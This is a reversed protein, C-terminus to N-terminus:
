VALVRTLASICRALEKENGITIRLFNPMNYNDLPRVIVGHKLLAQYIPKAPKHFNIALFNAVSPLASLGLTQCAQQLQALGKENMAISYEVHYKAKLAAMAAAQAASNINFPFRIRDLIDAIDPHSISYGARLGALGHIKSFTRTTILNPFEAQLKITDPYDDATVYEYYAEDLIVLIRGPVQKLFHALKAESVYSGSPNNPNAIFILRTKDNILSLMANLDYAYNIAPALVPTLHRVRAAIEYQSFTFDSTLIESGPEAFANMLLGFIEDSGNGLTISDYDVNLQEALACKLYYGKGDPYRHCNQLADRAAQLAEDCAGLTNENSSLKVIDDIGLERMVEDIAKGASYPQIQLFQPNALAKMPEM